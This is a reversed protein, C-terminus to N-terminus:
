ERYPLPLDPLEPCCSGERREEREFLLYAASKSQQPMRRTTNPLTSSLCSSWAKVSAHCAIAVSIRSLFSVSFDMGMSPKLLVFSREGASCREQRSWPKKPCPEDWYSTATPPSKWNSLAPMEFSNMNRPM